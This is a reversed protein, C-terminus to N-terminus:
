LAGWRTAFILDLRLYKKICQILSLFVSPSFNTTEGPKLGTPDQLPFACHCVAYVLVLLHLPGRLVSGRTVEWVPDSIHGLALPPLPLPINYMTLFLRSLALNASILNNLYNNLCTLYFLRLKTCTTLVNKFYPEWCPEERFADVLVM